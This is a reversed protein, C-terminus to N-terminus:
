CSKTVIQEGGEAIVMEEIDSECVDFLGGDQWLM